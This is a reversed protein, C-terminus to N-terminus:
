SGLADARSSPTAARELTEVMGGHPAHSRAGDLLPRGGSRKERPAAEARMGGASEEVARTRARSCSSSPGSRAESFSSGTGAQTASTSPTTRHIFAAAVRSRPSLTPTRSRRVPGGVVPSLLRVRRASESPVASTSSADAGSREPRATTPTREITRPAGARCAGRPLCGFGRRVGRWRAPARGARARGCYVALDRGLEPDCLLCGPVVHPQEERFQADM